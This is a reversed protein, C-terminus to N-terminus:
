LDFAGSKSVEINNYKNKKLYEELIQRQNENCTPGLMISDVIDKDFYAYCTKIIKDGIFEINLKTEEDERVEILAARIEKEHEWPLHKYFSSYYYLSYRLASFNNPVKGRKKDSEYRSNISECIKGIIKEYYSVDSFIGCRKKISDKFKEINFGIAIGQTGAYEKNWFAHSNYKHTMSFIYSEPPMQLDTKQWGNNKIEQENKELLKLLFLSELPDNKSSMSDIFRLKIKGEKYEESEKTPFIKGLIDMKTYHWIKEKYEKWDELILKDEVLSYRNTFCGDPMDEREFDNPTDRGIFKFVGLFEWFDKGKSRFVARLEDIEMDFHTDLTERIEKKDNLLINLKGIKKSNFWVSWIRCKVKKGDINREVFSSAQKDNAEVGFLEKALQSRTLPNTIEDFANLFGKQKIEALTLKSM